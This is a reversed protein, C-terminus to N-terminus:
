EALDIRQYFLAVEPAENAFLEKKFAATRVSAGNATATNSVSGETATIEYGEPLEVQWHLAQTFLNTKPLVLAAEGSVRDWAKLKLHYTLSVKSTTSSGSKGTLPFELQQPARQVPREDQGNVQCALLTAGDPLPVTWTSTGRHTLEYSLDHLVSGDAVLRTSATAKMITAQATEFRPLKADVVAPAADELQLTVEGGAGPLVYTTPKGEARFPLQGNLKLVRSPDTETLTFRQAPAPILKVKAAGGTMPLSLPLKIEHDAKGEWVVSLGSADRLMAIGEPLDLAELNWESGVLALTHWDDTFSRLRFVAECRLLEGELRASYIASQLAVAVAPKKASTPSAQSAAKWVTQWDQLPLSVEGSTVAPSSSAFPNEDALVSSKGALWIVLLLFSLHKMLM